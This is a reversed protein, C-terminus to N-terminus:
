RVGVWNRVPRRPRGFEGASRGEGEVEGANEVGIAKLAGEFWKGGVEPCFSM